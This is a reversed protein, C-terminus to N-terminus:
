VEVKIKGIATLESATIELYGMDFANLLRLTYIQLRHQQATALHQCQTRPPPVIRRLPRTISQDDM